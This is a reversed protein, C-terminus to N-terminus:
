TRNSFEIAILHDLASANPLGLSLSPSTIPPQAFRTAPWRPWRRNRLPTASPLVLWAPVSGAASPRKMLCLRILRWYFGRRSPRPRRGQLHRLLGAEGLARGGPPLCLRILVCEPNPNEVSVRTTYGNGSRVPQSGAPTQLDPTSWPM